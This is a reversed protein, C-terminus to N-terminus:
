YSRPVSDAAVAGAAEVLRYSHEIVISEQPQLLRTPSRLELRLVNRTWDVHVSNVNVQDSDFIDILATDTLKDLHGWAGAPRKEGAYSRSARNDGIPGPLADTVWKGDALRLAMGADKLDRVEFPPYIRLTAEREAKGINRLTVRERLTAGAELSLEREMELHNALAARMTVSTETQSVVAYPEWWGPSPYRDESFLESADRRRSYDNDEHRPTWRKRGDLTEISLIRSGSKPLVEVKLESNRLTVIPIVAPKEPLNRLMIDVEQGEACHTIKAEAVISKIEDSWRKTEDGLLSVLEDGQRRFGTEPHALLALLPLHALRVRALKLSDNQVAKRAQLFLRQADRAFHGPYREASSHYIGVHEGKGNAFSAHLLEIYRKIFPSAAGYFAPLFESTARELDTKPDWLAKAMLYTRLPQMEGGRSFYNAEEYIGITGNEVFTQINPGIVKLNPFPELTLAYNIVYDWISLKKCIASWGKLDALFEANRPCTALPHSFCCEISCLRVTVNVAPRVLLPPKRSYRYALTDILVHPSEDRVADAIANVFRLIPGAQSGEATAVATCNPCQCFGGNDNQSVSVINATPTDAIWKRVQALAIPLIETNTLCLQSDNRKGDVLAFYEPHQAFYQATPVLQHFTHVFSGYDIKGGHQADLQANASTFRNRMAFLTDRHEPYDTARNILPPVYRRRINPIRITGTTPYSACDATFWRCGLYDELFVSVAYLVGRKNGALHVDHGATAIAIGDDGLSKLAEGTAAKTAARGLYFASRKNVANLSVVPLTQGSILQLHLVLERAATTETLTPNSPVAVVYQGTRVEGDAIRIVARGKETANNSSESGAANATCALNFALLTAFLFFSNSMKLFHNM